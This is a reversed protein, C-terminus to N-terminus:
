QDEDEGVDEGVDIMEGRQKEMSQFMEMTQQTLKDIKKEAQRLKRGCLKVLSIGQEFAQIAEDLPLRGEELRDVIQELRQLAEEFSEKDAV